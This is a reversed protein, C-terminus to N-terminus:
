KIKLVNSYFKFNEILEEFTNSKNSNDPVHKLKLKSAVNIFNEDFTKFLKGEIKTLVGKELM